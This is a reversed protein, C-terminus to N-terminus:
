HKEDDNKKIFHECDIKNLPSYYPVYSSVWVYENKDYDYQYLYRACKDKIPCNSNTCYTVDLNPLRKKNTM